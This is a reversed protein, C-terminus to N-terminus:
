RAVIDSLRGIPPRGRDVAAEAESESREGVQGYFVTGTHSMVVSAALMPMTRCTLVIIECKGEQMIVFTAPRADLM